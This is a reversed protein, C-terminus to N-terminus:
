KWGCNQKIPEFYKAANSIEFEATTTGFVSDEVRFFLTKSKEIEKVFNIARKGGWLGAASSDVASEWRQNQVAPRDDFRYSVRSQSSAVLKSPLRIMVTTQKRFCSVQLNATLETLAPSRHPAYTTTRSPATAAVMKANDLKDTQEGPIWRDPLDSQALASGGALIMIFLYKLM